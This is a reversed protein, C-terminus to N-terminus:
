PKLRRVWIAPLEESAAAKRALSDTRITTTTSHTASRSKGEGAVAAARDGCADSLAAARGRLEGGAGEVQDATREGDVVQHPHM